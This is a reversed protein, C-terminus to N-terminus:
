SDMEKRYKLAGRTAIIQPNIGPYRRQSLGVIYNSAASLAQMEAGCEKIAMWLTRQDWAERGDPLRDPYKQNLECWREIVAESKATRNFRVVGSLLEDGNFISAAIDCHVATLVEIPEAIVISDVDIYCLDRSHREFADAVFQSKFQTAQMWSKFKPVATLDHPLNLADLSERLVVAEGEYPTDLTYYGIFIM